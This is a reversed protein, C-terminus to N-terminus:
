SRTKNVNWIAEAFYGKTDILERNVDFGLKEALKEIYEISYKYSNELHVGEWSDFRFSKQISKITVTQPIISLLWSEMRGETPNYFCHHVFKDRNFDADLEANMRDLINLNFDRTIGKPDNYAKELIKVNKKLDFGIFVCDNESLVNWLQFLFDQTQPGNFNGISSGLFLVINRMPAQNGLWNLASSYEAVIGKVKLSSNQFDNKLSEVVQEVMEECYDILVYEFEIGHALFDNIIIKTKRADGVGLEVLRFPSQAAIERIEQKCRTLIELECQTPYYEELEMIKEFLFSGKSDYLYKSPLSKPNNSLGKLVDLAFSNPDDQKELNHIQYSNPTTSKM